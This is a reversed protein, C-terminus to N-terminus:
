QLSSRFDALVKSDAVGQEGATVLRDVDDSSVTLGTPIRQLRKRTADDAVDSLSLHAFFGRVDDCSHGDIVRAEQCRVRALVSVFHQLYDDALVLTEFNYSDIQSGSVSDMIQGFGTIKRERPWNSDRPAEGDASILLVRRVRDLGLQRLRDANDGYALAKEITFRMALNDSIGGDMLHVYRTKDVNGYLRALEVLQHERPMANPADVRAVWAPERGGCHAAQNELTIPTFLIPFGNSAAVANSVPYRSLDSCILDFEDQTFSFVTGYNIDTADISIVPRGQKELDAFTAGHFLHRDYIAAMEDSSGYDSSFLWQWRWPLLYLGWIYANMDVKLFDREYDAFIRDRYLGYYAATFSGGSVAAYTDLEDLLRRPKGNLPIQYDRLGKLVGYSFASSRKGGGSGALIVLLEDSSGNDPLGDLRYGGGFNPSPGNEGATQKLPENM